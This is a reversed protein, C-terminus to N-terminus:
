GRTFLAHLAAPEYVHDMALSGIFTRGGQSVELIEGGDRTRRWHALHHKRLRAIAHWSCGLHPRTRPGENVLSRLLVLAELLEGAGDNTPHPPDPPLSTVTPPYCQLTPSTM